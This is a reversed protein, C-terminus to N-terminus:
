VLLQSVYKYGDRSARFLCEPERCIVWEPLWKWLTYWVESSQLIESSPDPIVLYQGKEEESMEISDASDQDIGGDIEDRAHRSNPLHTQWEKLIHKWSLRPIAFADRFWRAKQQSSATCLFEQVCTAIDEM